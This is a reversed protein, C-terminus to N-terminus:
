FYGFADIFNEKKVTKNKCKPYWFQLILILIIEDEEERAGMEKLSSLQLM